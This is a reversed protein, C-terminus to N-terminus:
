QPPEWLGIPRVIADARVQAATFSSCPAFIGPAEFSRLAGALVDNLLVVATGTDGNAGKAPFQLQIHITIGSTNRVTGVVHCCCINQAAPANVTPALALTEIVASLSPGTVGSQCALTLSGSLALAAGVTLRAAHKM